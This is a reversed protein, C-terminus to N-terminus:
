PEAHLLSQHLIEAKESGVNKIGIIPMNNDMRKKVIEALTYGVFSDSHECAMIKAADEEGWYSTIQDQNFYSAGIIDRFVYYNPLYRWPGGINRAKNRPYLVVNTDPLQEELKLVAERTSPEYDARHWQLNHLWTMKSLPEPDAQTTGINLDQLSTCSLLPSYDHLNLSFLELYILEKLNAVPSIDRINTDALILYKVHPMYRLWECDSARTHGIDVAIMETCYRLKKLEENTPYYNVEAPYFYVADTRVKVEGIVVTWVISVEPHRQNLADMDEDAIGCFSMVLKELRPFYPLMREVEEPTVPCRSIDIETCDTLFRQGALPLECRVLVGPLSDALTMREEDTLSTGTLTLERLRVFLPLMGNLEEMSVTTESLDLIEADTSVSKGGLNVRCVLTLEPFQEWLALLTRTQPVKGELTLKKLRPLLPLVAELEEPEADAVTLEQAFSDCCISGVNVRYEVQCEPRRRQLYALAEYDTCERADVQRLRPLFDLRDAEALTLSKITVTETDKPFFAGAIRVHSHLYSKAGVIAALVLVVTGALIGWKKEM